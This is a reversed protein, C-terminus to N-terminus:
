VRNLTGDQKLLTATAKILDFEVDHFKSGHRRQFVHLLNALRRRAVVSDRPDALPQSAGADIIQRL